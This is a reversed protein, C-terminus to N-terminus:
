GESSVLEKERRGRRRHGGRRGGVLAAALVGLLALVAAGGAALAIIVWRPLSTKAKPVVSYQGPGTHVIQPPAVNPVVVSAVYHTAATVVGSTSRGRLAATCSPHSGLPLNAANAPLVATQHPLVDSSALPYVYRKTGSLCDVAGTAHLFTQGINQETIDLRRLGDITSLSIGIVKIGSSFSALDGVTVAVGVDVQHLIVAEASAGGNNSIQQPAPNTAPKVAIGALYQQAPTGAPVTVTFPLRISKEPALHVTAPLGSIWCGTGQCPGFAGIYADGSSPATTGRAASIALTEPLASANAVEVVAKTTAGPAITLSFYSSPAGHPQGVPQAGFAPIGSGSTGLAAASPALPGNLAVAILAVAAAIGARRATLPLVLRRADPLPSM